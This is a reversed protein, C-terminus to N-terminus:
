WSMAPVHPRSSYQRQRLQQTRLTFSSRWLRIASVRYAEQAFWVAVCTVATKFTSAEACLLFARFLGPLRTEFGLVCCLTLATTSYSVRTM